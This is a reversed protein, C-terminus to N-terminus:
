AAAAAKAYFNIPFHNHQAHPRAPQNAPQSAARAQLNACVDKIIVTGGLYVLENARPLLLISTSLVTSDLLYANLLVYYCFVHLVYTLLVCCVPHEM